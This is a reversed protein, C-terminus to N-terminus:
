ETVAQGLVSNPFLTDLIPQNAESWWLDMNQDTGLGRMHSICTHLTGSVMQLGWFMSLNDSAALSQAHHNRM